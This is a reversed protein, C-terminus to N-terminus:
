PNPQVPISVAIGGDCAVYFQPGFPNDFHLPLRV